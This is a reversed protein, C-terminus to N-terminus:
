GTLLSAWYRAEPYLAARRSSNGWYSPMDDQNYFSSTDGGNNGDQAAAVFTVQGWETGPSPRQTLYLPAVDSSIPQQQQQEEQQQQQQQQQQVLYVMLLIRGRFFVGFPPCGGGCVSPSHYFPPWETKSKKLDEQIQGVTLLSPRGHDDVSSQVMLEQVIVLTDVKMLSQWRCESLCGVLLNASSSSSSSSLLEQQQQQELIVFGHFELETRADALTMKVNTSAPADNHYNAQHNNSHCSAQDANVYGSTSTTNTNTEM